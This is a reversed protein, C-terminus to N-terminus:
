LNITNVPFKYGITSADRPLIRYLMSVPTFLLYAHASIIILIIIYYLIIIYVTDM